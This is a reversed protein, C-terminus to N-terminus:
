AISNELKKKKTEQGIAKAEKKPGMEIWFSGKKKKRKQKKESKGKRKRMDLKNSKILMKQGSKKKKIITHATIPDLPNYSRM